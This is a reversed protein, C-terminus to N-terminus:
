ISKPRYHLEWIHQYDDNDEDNFAVPSLADFDLLGGIESNKNQQSNTITHTISNDNEITYDNRRRHKGNGRSSLQSELWIGQNSHRTRTQEELDELEEEMELEMLEEAETDDTLIASAYNEEMIGQHSMATKLSELELIKSLHTQAHSLNNIDDALQDEIPKSRMFTPQSQNSKPIIDFSDVITDNQDYTTQQDEDDSDYQTCKFTGERAIRWQNNRPDCIFSTSMHKKNSSLGKKLLVMEQIKKDYKLQLEMMMEKIAVAESLLYEEYEQCQIATAIVSNGSKRYKLKFNDNTIYEEHQLRGCKGKFTSCKCINITSFLLILVHIFYFKSHNYRFKSM